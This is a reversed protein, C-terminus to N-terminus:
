LDLWKNLAPNLFAINVFVNAVPRLFPNIDAKDIVQSARQKIRDRLQLRTKRPLESVQIKGQAPNLTLPESPQYRIESLGKFRGHNVNQIFERVKQRGVNYDHERLSNHFFGAFACLPEGALEDDTATIGYINMEDRHRLDAALEFLLIANIWTDATQQSIANLEQYERPFQNQLRQEDSHRQAADSGYFLSLLSESAPSINETALGDKLQQHLAMSRQNFLEIEDNMREATIWDQFRSHNFISEALRIATPLLSANAARFTHNISSGKAGPAVFLYIRNDTDVHADINDVLNKALGLPENQFVGGDTYAYGGETQPYASPTRKTYTRDTYESKQRILERVSFAFPFAGCAVSAKRIPEWYAQTDHQATASDIVRVFEDQHRTYTFAADTRMQRAYDIGNLNSMALGLRLKDRVIPHPKATPVTGSAYRQTMYRRSIDDVAESSLFSATPNDVARIRLLDTLDVDRVWAGYLPNNTASHFSDADYILKGACISATMGGASAGTLVDVIIEDGNVASENHEKLARILEYLVGAEYSGLSVAGAVTIAVRKSM